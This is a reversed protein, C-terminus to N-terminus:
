EVDVPLPTWAQPVPAMLMPSIKDNEDFLEPHTDCFSNHYIAAWDYKARIYPKNTFEKLKAVVSTKHGELFETFPRDDPYAIMVTNDLYDVFVHQDSDILLNSVKRERRPDRYEMEASDCLIVRPYVALNQEAQYAEMLAPGFVIDEDIYLEGVSIAGRLFYGKRALEAQLFSIYYIVSNLNEVAWWGHESIPYGIILNDTFSRVQPATDGFPNERNSREKLDRYAVDLANRLRVLEKQGKGEENFAAKMYDRYGLIDLWAAVSRRLRPAGDSDKYPNIRVDAVIFILV